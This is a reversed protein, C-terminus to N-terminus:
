RKATSGSAKKQPQHKTQKSTAQTKAHSAHKKHSFPNLHVYGFMTGSALLSVLLLKRMIIRRRAQIIAMGHPDLLKRFSLKIYNPEPSRGVEDSPRSRGLPDPFVM